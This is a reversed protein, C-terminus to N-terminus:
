FEDYQYETVPGDQRAAAPTLPTFPQDWRRHRRNIERLVADAQGYYRSRSRDIIQQRCGSAGRPQVQRTKIRVIETDIRAIAVHREMATVETATVREQLSNCLRRADSTDVNFIVTAGVTALADVQAPSYQRLYQHCLCVGINYKRCQVLISDLADTQFRHSEDIHIYCPKRNERAQRARALMKTQLLSLILSGVTGQIARGIGSLDVLLVGGEDMVQTLDLANHTQMFTRSVPPVDLLLGLKHQVPARDTSAYRRLRSQWFRRLLPDDVLQLVQSRLREAAEDKVDLAEAADLFSTEPLHLLGSLVARLIHTARHGWGESVDKLSSVINDMLTGRGGVTPQALPNILPVWEPTSWDLLITRDVDGPSILDMVDAVLDGHPDLVIVSDGRAIDDVIIRKMLETKGKGPKGIIHVNLARDALPICIPRREGVVDCDGIYSGESLDLAPVLRELLPLAEPLAKAAQPPPTHVLSALEASNALFGSRYTLGLCFMKRILAPELFGYATEPIRELPRGGHQVMGSFVDLTRLTQGADEGGGIVATRLAVAFLGRDNHAKDSLANALVKEDGSPMQQTSGLMSYTNALFRLLFEHDHLAAINQHWDHGHAVPQFLVQYVGIAPIAITGIARLVTALPTVSLGEPSTLQKSYVCPAFLDSFRVDSWRAASLEALPHSDTHRLACSDFVSSFATQLVLRDERHCTFGLHVRLHNGLIEFAIRHRVGQLQRLFSEARGWSVVHDPAVWLGCCVRDRGGKEPALVWPLPSASEHLDIAARLPQYPPELEVPLPSLDARRGKQLESCALAAIQKKLMIPRARNILGRAISM